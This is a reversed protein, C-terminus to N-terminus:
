DCQIDNAEEYEVSEDEQLPEENMYDFEEEVTKEETENEKFNIM